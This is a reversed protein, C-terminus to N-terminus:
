TQLSDDRPWTWAYYVVAALAATEVASGAVFYSWEGIASGVITLAYLLSLSINLVRNLRPGLVLTAFIMLSPILIYTTTGLLFGQGVDFKFVKGAELSARFDPRYLSFLDVYAFVFLMTAWLGSIKIRVGVPAPNLTAGDTAQADPSTSEM